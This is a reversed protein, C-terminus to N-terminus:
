SFRRYQNETAHKKRQPQHLKNRDQRRKASMLDAIRVLNPPPPKLWSTIPTTAEAAVPEIVVSSGTPVTLGEADAIFGIAPTKRSPGFARRMVSRLQQALRRTITIM